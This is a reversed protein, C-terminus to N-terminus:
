EKRLMGRFILEIAQDVQASLMEPQVTLGILVVGELFSLLNLATM